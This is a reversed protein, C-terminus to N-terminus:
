VEKFDPEIYASKQEQAPHGLANATHISPRPQSLDVLITDQGIKCIHHYPIFIDERSKFISSLGKSGPVIVGLIKASTEDFILDIVNGLRKGDVLSVVIKTRLESFSIEM